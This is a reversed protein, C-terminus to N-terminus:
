YYYWLSEYEDACEGLDELRSLYELLPVDQGVYAERHTIGKEWPHFSYVRSGDPLVALLDRHQFARLYNKGLGPVNYVPEDSRRIAAARGTASVSSEREEFPIRLARGALGMALHTMEAYFGAQLDPRPVDHALDYLAQAISFGAANESSEPLMGRWARACDRVVPLLARMSSTEDDSRDCQEGSVYAYLTRRAESVSGAQRVVALINEAEAKFHEPTYRQAIPVTQREKGSQTIASAEHAIPHM